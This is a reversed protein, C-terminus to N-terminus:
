RDKGNVVDEVAAATVNGAVRRDVLRAVERGAHPRRRPGVAVPNGVTNLMPLDVHSDAYAYSKVLDIGHLKAYHTLWASRSEGVM